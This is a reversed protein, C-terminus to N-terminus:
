TNSEKELLGLATLYAMERQITEKQRMYGVLYTLYQVTSHRFQKWGSSSLLLRRRGHHADAEEDVNFGDNQKIATAGSPSRCAM